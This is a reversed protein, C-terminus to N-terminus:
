TSSTGSAAAPSPTAPLVPVTGGPYIVLDHSDKAWQDIVPQLLRWTALVETASAFLAQDARVADVLVREYADIHKEDAFMTKYTFDLAAQRMTSEFGPEKVTLELRIGENPQVQFTLSNRHQAGPSKFEISISTSKEPMAKGTELILDVGQWREASHKLHVKAYTETTSDPNQVEDRYSDYQAREAQAPDAPLLQELFYQKSLHIDHSSMSAPIDMMVLALLQMLHSQILDRLAGTHDYFDSRSEVGLKERASIVVREIHDNNWLPTFIPNHLRFTLLNQATEKALYHDIRYIQPETFHNKVVGILAEASKLDYGFPKELLLRSREDNLGSSALHEVIPTYASPPISMYFIRERPQSEDLADLHARLAHYDEDTNPELKFASLAARLRAIGEPDCVNDNELVCLEVSGLLEDINLDRRSVGIIKTDLPLMEETFLRYLAPLLKRKSLDGTIGFIVIVAPKM